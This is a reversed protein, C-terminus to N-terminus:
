ERFGGSVRSAGIFFIPLLAFLALLLLWAGKDEWLAVLNSRPALSERWLTNLQDLSIGLVGQVGGSCTAGDGYAVVLGHLTERGYRDRIYNVVSASQAYALRAQSLDRPFAACLTDLPILTREGAAEELLSQGNPDPVFVYEVSTALGEALWMPVRDFDNQTAEHLLAHTVEHPLVRQFDPLYAPEPAFSVLIVSTEYLTLAEAGNPLGAPLALALDDAGAYMYVDIPKRVTEVRIDQQARELGAVTVDLAQQATKIDGAYWHVNVIGEGLTQWDFRDDTYAFTRPETTVKAGAADAITWWYTVEAFPRVYRKEIEHVYEVAVSTSPDFGLTEISASQTDSARYTLVISQIPDASTAELHFTLRQGFLVSQTNSKIEIKDQAAAPVFAMLCFLVLACLFALCTQSRRALM